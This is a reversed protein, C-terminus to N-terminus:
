LQQLKSQVQMGLYFLAAPDQYPIECFIHGPQPRKNPPYVTQWKYTYKMNFLVEELAFRSRKNDLVEIIIFNQPQRSPAPPPMTSSISRKPDTKSNHM